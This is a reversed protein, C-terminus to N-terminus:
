SENQSQIRWKIFDRQSQIRPSPIFNIILDDGQQPMEYYSSATYEGDKHNTNVM